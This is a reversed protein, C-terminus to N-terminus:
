LCVDGCVQDPTLQNDMGVDVIDFADPAVIAPNMYRYYLLNGVVKLIDDEPAEPFKTQLYLRLQMAMYRMAYRYLVILGRNCHGHIYITYSYPLPSANCLVNFRNYLIWAVVSYMCTHRQKLMQIILDLVIFSVVEFVTSESGHIPGGRINM